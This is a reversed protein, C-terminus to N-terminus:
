HNKRFTRKAYEDGSTGDDFEQMNRPLNNLSSDFCTGLTLQEISDSLNDIIGHM